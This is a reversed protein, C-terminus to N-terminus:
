KKVGMSKETAQILDLVHRANAGLDGKGIRSESRVYVASGGQPSSQLWVTVDDKFRWVPTAVVAHLVKHEADIGTIEWGLSQAAHSVAEFLPQVAIDYHRPRLEPFIADDRVEAVHTTLYTKLRFSFGPPEGLPPHNWALGLALLVAPILVVVLVVRLILSTTSVDM